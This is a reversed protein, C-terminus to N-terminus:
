TREAETMGLADMLYSVETLLHDGTAELQSDKREAGLARWRRAVRRLIQTQSKAYSIDIPRHDAAIDRRHGPPIWGLKVLANEIGAERTSLLWRMLVEKQDDLLRQAITGQQPDVETEVTFNM